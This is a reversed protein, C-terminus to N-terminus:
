TRGIVFTRLLYATFMPMPISLLDNILMALDYDVPIIEIKEAEIKLFNPIDNIIGLLMNVPTRIKHSMNSLFSSKAESVAFARESFNILADREKRNTSTRSLGFCM